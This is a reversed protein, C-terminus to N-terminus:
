LTSNKKLNTLGLQNIQNTKATEGGVLVLEPCDNLLSSTTYAGTAAPAVSNVAM